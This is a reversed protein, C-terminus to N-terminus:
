SVREPRIAALVYEVSTGTLTLWRASDKAAVDAPDLADLYACVVAAAKETAIRAVEADSVIIQDYLPLLEDAAADLAKTVDSM